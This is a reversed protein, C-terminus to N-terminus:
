VLVGRAYRTTRRSKSAFVAMTLHSAYSEYKGFRQFTVGDDLERTIESSRDTNTTRTRPRRIKKGDHNTVTEKKKKRSKM